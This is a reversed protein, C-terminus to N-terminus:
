VRPESGRRTPEVVPHTTRYPVLSPATPHPAAPETVPVVPEAAITATPRVPLATKVPGPKPTSYNPPLYGMGKALGTSFARNRRAKAADGEKTKRFEYAAAERQMASTKLDSGTKQQQIKLTEDFEKKRQKMEETWEVRRRHEDARAWRAEYSAMINDAVMNVDQFVTDVASFVGSTQSSANAEPQEGGTSVGGM